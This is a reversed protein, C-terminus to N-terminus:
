AIGSLYANIEMARRRAAIAIASVMEESVEGEVASMTAELASDLNSAIEELVDHFVDLPFGVKTVTQAFHRPKISDIKYRKRNGVKMSLRFDDSRIQGINRQWQDSTIDYFPTMAFRNRPRLFISYNKAHGDISGIVWLIVQAKLFNQMDSVANDSSELLKVCRQIGIQGRSEYKMEPPIGHAQCMDEQPLRLIRGKGDVMRDFRKISLVHLDDDLKVIKTDAVDLGLLRCLTMCFHENQVSETHDLEGYSTARKGIQPKLIHTTPTAGTPELWKGNHFLFATKM